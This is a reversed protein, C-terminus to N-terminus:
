KKELIKDSSFAMQFKIPSEENLIFHKPAPHLTMANSTDSNIKKFKASVKWSIPHIECLLLSGLFPKVHLIVKIKNFVVATTEQIFSM